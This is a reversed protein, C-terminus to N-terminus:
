KDGKMFAEFGADKEDDAVAADMSLIQVPKQAKLYGKLVDVAKNAPTGKLDDLKDCAYQAVQEETMTAHDFTGVLASVQHYLADRQAIMQLVKAPLEDVAKEVGNVKDTLEEDAQKVQQAKLPDVGDDDASGASSDNYALKEAKGMITRILEDSLKGKLIGGIEDILARKDVDEDKSCKDGASASPALVGLIEALKGDKDGAEPDAFLAKIAEIAQKVKDMRKNEKGPAADKGGVGHNTSSLNPKILYLEGDILTCLEPERKPFTTKPLEDESWGIGEFGSRAIAYGGAREFRLEAEALKQKVLWLPANGNPKLLKKPIFIRVKVDKELDFLDYLVDTAIAKESEWTKVFPVGERELKARYEAEEKRRASVGGNKKAKEYNSVAAPTLSGNPRIWRKQVWFDVGNKEVLAAKKTEATIKFGDPLERIVKKKKEEPLDKKELAGVEEATARQWRSFGESKIGEPIYWKKKDGDWRAGLSKADEKEDYPVNLYIPGKQETKEVSQGTTESKPQSPKPVSSHTNEREGAGNHAQTIHKGNFKGGMGAKINGSSDILVPRGKNDPGNPKVTIWDDDQATVIDLADFAMADMVRVDHGMRGNDVLAIHNGKLDRQVADYHMGNYQGPTLDYKCFYGLSLEKKGDQIERKLQESFIKVDAFLTGNKEKVDEGLVGHVGKQEAPTFDPGLMTHDDVLPVLKFTDAAKKIEEEPRYVQYIRDPELSPSIQKGLYPFVGAKTIPNDKILWFQNHDIQKM